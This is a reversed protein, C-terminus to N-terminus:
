EQTFPDSYDELARRRREGWQESYWVAMAPDSHRMYSMIRPINFEASAGLRCGYTHRLGHATIPRDIGAQKAVKAIRDNVAGSLIPFQGHLEIINKLDHALEDRGPLFWQYKEISSISKPSFGPTAKQEDSLWDKHEVSRDRCKSCPKGKDHPNGGTHNGQGIEGAGGICEAFPEIRVYWTVGDYDSSFAEDVTGPRLHVLEGVRLGTALPVRVCLRNLVDDQEIACRELKNTNSRDLPQHKKDNPGSYKPKQVM